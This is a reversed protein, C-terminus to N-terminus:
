EPALNAYRPHCPEPPWSFPRGANTAVRQGLDLVAKRRAQVERRSDEHWLTKLLDDCRQLEATILVLQQATDLTM